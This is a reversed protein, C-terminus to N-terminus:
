LLNKIPVMPDVDADYDVNDFGFGFLGLFDEQYGVMDSIENVNESSAGEWLGQIEEQVDPRMEWDDVRIRGKEDLIMEEGTYFRERFLRDIQEICAEHLGKKKMVDYLIGIYLPIIPIASSSQTVLAKNVSVYASGNVAQMRKNLELGTAELHDKAAGITGARYIPFTVQPGIYSYAVNICGEALVGADLLEQTWIDWDEGGMVKVTHKIEDENAPDISVLSVEGTQTNVTKNTYTESKPKLVSAFSEGTQPDTRRPAALSYVVMDVQGLDEKITKIIIEKAESGFADGNLTKFYRGAKLAEEELAATLYWGAGAPKKEGPPKEFCIGLTDADSGFAATIRSALGFGQSSGIVLVKKPGGNVPGKSQVYAIQRRVSEAAGEPHATTCIHGRVKPKIVMPVGTNKAGFTFFFAV